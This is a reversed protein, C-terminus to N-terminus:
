ATKVSKIIYNGKKDIVGWYDGREIQIHKEDISIVNESSPSEYVLTGQGNYLLYRYDMGTDGYNVLLIDDTQFVSDFYTLYYLGPKDFLITNGKYVRTRQEGDMKQVVV